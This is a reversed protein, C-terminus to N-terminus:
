TVALTTITGSSGRYKLAGSEVWLLGGEGFWSSPPTTAEKIAIAGVGNGTNYAGAVLLNGTLFTNAGGLIIDLTGNGIYIQDANTVYALNVQVGTTMKQYLWSYNNTAVISTGNELLLGGGVGVTDSPVIDLIIDTGNSKYFGVRGNIAHTAKKTDRDVITMLPRLSVDPDATIDDWFLYWEDWVEGGVKKYNHEFGMGWRPHASDQVTTASGWNYVLAWLNDIEGEFTAHATYLKLDMDADKNKLTLRSGDNGAAGLTAGNTLVQAQASAGPVVGSSILAGLDGLASWKGFGSVDPTLVTGSAASESNFNEAIMPEIVVASAM